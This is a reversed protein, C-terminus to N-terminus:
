AEIFTGGNLSSSFSCSERVLLLENHLVDFQHSIDLFHDTDHKIKRFLKDIKASGVKWKMYINYFEIPKIQEDQLIEDLLKIKDLLLLRCQESDDSITKKVSVKENFLKSSKEFALLFTDTETDCSLTMAVCCGIFLILICSFLKYYM